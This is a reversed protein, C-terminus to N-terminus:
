TSTVKALMGAIPAGTTGRAAACRNSAPGEQEFKRDPIGALYGSFQEESTLRSARM